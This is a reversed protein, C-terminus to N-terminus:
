EETRETTAAVQKAVQSREAPLDAVEGEDGHIEEARGANRELARRNQEATEPFQRNFGSWM